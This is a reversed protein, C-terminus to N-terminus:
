ETEKQKKLHDIVSQFKAGPTCKETIWKKAKEPNMEPNEYLAIIEKANNKYYEFFADKDKVTIKEGNWEAVGKEFLGNLVFTDAQFYEDDPTNGEISQLAMGISQAIYQEETYPLSGNKIFERILGRHISEGTLEGVVMQQEIGLREAEPTIDPYVSHSFEHLETDTRSMEEIQEASTGEFTKESDAILPLFKKLNKDYSRIEEDLFMLIAPDSQAAAIFTTNVGYSGISLYNRITPKKMEETFQPIGLHVLNDALSKQLLRFPEEQKKSDATRVVVRLEPDLYPPKYYGGVDKYGGIPSIINIPFETNTVDNFANLTKKRLEETKNPDKEGIYESLAQTYASFEKAGSENIWVENNQAIASLKAEIFQTEHPFLEAFSHPKQDPGIPNTPEAGKPTEPSLQVYALYRVFLPDAKVSADLCDTMLKRLNGNLGLKNLDDDNAKEIVQKYLRTEIKRTIHALVSLLVGTRKEAEPSELEEFWGNSLANLLEKDPLEAISPIKEKIAPFKSLVYERVIRRIENNLELGSDWAGVKESLNKWNTEVGNEDTEPALLALTKEIYRLHPTAPIIKEPMEKANPQQEM